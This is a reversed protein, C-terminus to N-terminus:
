YGSNQQTAIATNAAIEDAPVPLTFRYDDAAISCTSILECDRSDRDITLGAKSGLRKIDNYRYGEYAFEIRRERMVDAWAAQPSSYSPVAPLGSVFRNSRLQQLTTAAGTLDGSNIQAEAKIFYAESARFIKQDNLRFLGESGPYKNILLIDSNRYDTSTAYDADIQSGTAPDLNVIVSKRIDTDALQNFLSRGVEYFPSGTISNDVSMWIGGILGDGNTRELKFIVEGDNLDTWILPYMAASTLPVADIIQQAYTQAATYDERFLAIRAQLATVFNGTVFKVNTATADLNSAAFSLDENILAFVEGNTSRPLQDTVSPINTFMIVGLANDDTIDASFYSLLDFYAYARLARVQAVYNNYDAEEGPMVEVVDAAAIFRNCFNILDYNSNWISSAYASGSNLIFNYTGSGLGQGGNAFGIGVEDCWVSSLSVQNSNNVASYVYNLGLRLDGVSEFTNELTLEGPQVIDIADECSGLILTMSACLLLIQKKM